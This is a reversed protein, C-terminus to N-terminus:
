WSAIDIDFNRALDRLPKLNLLQLVAATTENKSEVESNLSYTDTAKQRQTDRKGLVTISEQNLTGKRNREQHASTDEYNSGDTDDDPSRRKTTNRMTPRVTMNYLSLSSGKQLQQQQQEETGVM